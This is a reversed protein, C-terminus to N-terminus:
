PSDLGIRRRAQSPHGRLRDSSRTAPPSRRRPAAPCAAATAPDPGPTTTEHRHCSRSSCRHAQPPQREPTLPRAASCRQPPCPRPQRRAAGTRGPRPVPHPAPHSSACPSDPANEGGRRLPASMSRRRPIPRGRRAPTAAGGSACRAGAPSSVSSPLRSEAGTCRDKSVAVTCPVPFACALNVSGVVAFRQAAAGQQAPQRLPHFAPHDLRGARVRDGRDRRMRLPEAKGPRVTATRPAPASIPGTGASSLQPVRTIATSRGWGAM